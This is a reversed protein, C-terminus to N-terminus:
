GGLRLAFLYNKQVTHMDRIRFASKRSRDNWGSARGQDENTSDSPISGENCGNFPQTDVVQGHRCTFTSAEWGIRQLNVLGNMFQFTVAKTLPRAKICGTTVKTKDSDGSFFNVWGCSSDGKSTPITLTSSVIKHEWPMRRWWVLGCGSIM